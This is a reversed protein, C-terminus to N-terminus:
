FLTLRKSGKSINCRAHSVAINQETHDGGAALPIVHDFHLDKRDVKEGCLHCRMKDRRCIRDYNISEIRGAGAKRCQRKRTARYHIAKFAEPNAERWRKTQVRFYARSKEINAHYRERAQRNRKERVRPLRAKQWARQKVRLTERNERQWKLVKAKIAEKHRQYSRKKSASKCAKCRRHTPDKPFDTALKEHGCTTCLRKDVTDASM